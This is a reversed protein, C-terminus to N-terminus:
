WQGSTRLHEIILGLRTEDDAASEVRGRFGEDDRLAPAVLIRLPKLADALMGARDEYVAELALGVWYSVFETRNQFLEPM